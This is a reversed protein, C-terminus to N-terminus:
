FLFFSLFTVPRHRHILACFALGDKFSDQFDQVNVGKYGETKRQVWLLLGQKASIGEESLGQIAFRLIVTWIMGLTLTRNGDVIAEPGISALKVDHAEIFRLAKGLVM